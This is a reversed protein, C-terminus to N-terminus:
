PRSDNGIRHDMSWGGHVRHVLGHAYEVLNEISFYNTLELFYGSWPFKVFCGQIKRFNYKLGQLKVNINMNLKKYNYM